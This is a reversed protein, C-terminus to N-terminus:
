VTHAPRAYAIDTALSDTTYDPLIVTGSELFGTSRGSHIAKPIRNKPITLVAQSGVYGSIPPSNGNQLTTTSANSLPDAATAASATM